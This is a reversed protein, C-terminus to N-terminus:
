HKITYCYLLSVPTFRINVTSYKAGNENEAHDEAQRLSQSVRVELNIHGGLKRLRVGTIVHGPQAEVVDLDLSREEYTMMMYDKGEKFDPNDVSFDISSM